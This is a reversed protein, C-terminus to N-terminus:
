EADSAEDSVASGAWRGVLRGAAWYCGADLLVSLGGIVGGVVSAAAVGILAIFALSPLPAGNLIAGVLLVGLLFAAGILAGAAFGRLVLRWLGRLGNRLDALGGDALAWRTAAATLLWLYAFVAVGPLTGFGALEGELAGGAHAALLGVLSLVVLNFSSVVWAEFRGRAGVRGAAAEAM